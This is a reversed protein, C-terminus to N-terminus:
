WVDVEADRDDTSSSELVNSLIRLRKVILV